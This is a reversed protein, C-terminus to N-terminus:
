GANNLASLSTKQQGAETFNDPSLWQEFAQQRLPWERDTISFWATDRNRGKTIMHNRFVGEHTFGFRLAARWSPANQPSKFALV